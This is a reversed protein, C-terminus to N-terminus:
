APEGRRLEPLWAPLLALALGLCGAVWAARGLGLPAPAGLLWTGCGLLTAYLTGTAAALARLRRALARRAESRKWFGPPRAREFFAELRESAEPPTALSAVLSAATGIAAAALLRRAEEAVFAALLPAALASAAIAALEGWANVRWWLWRLLLPVGLGAGLLLTAHWAAQISGLVTMLALSIAVLLPSALRAIWVLERPSAERRRLGRCWLRAYLDNALYSAGWNLHTDLTSALAALMGVLMLGRAGPPLLTEIGRVFTDAAYQTAAMSLGSEWASIRRGALFYDELSRSAARRSRLGVGLCYAVFAAVLLADIM